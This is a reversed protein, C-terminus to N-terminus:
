CVLSQSGTIELCSHRAGIILPSKKNTRRRKWFAIILQQDCRRCRWPQRFRSPPPKVGGLRALLRRVPYPLTPYAFGHLETERRRIEWPLLL